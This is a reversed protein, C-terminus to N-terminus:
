NRVDISHWLSLGPQVQVVDFHDPTEDYNVHTERLVTVGGKSGFGQGKGLVVGFGSRGGHTRSRSLEDKATTGIVQRRNLNFLMTISYVRGLCM